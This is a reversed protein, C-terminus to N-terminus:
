ITIKIAPAYNFRAGAVSSLAGIRFYYSRGAIFNQNNLNIQLTYTINPDSNLDTSSEARVLSTNVGVAVNPHAYLGIRAVNDATTKEIKFTATVMNGNKVVSADKIRLFPTVSFDLKTSGKIEFTEIPTVPQFNGQVASIRYEGEFIMSNRYTGDNQVLLTQTINTPNEAWGLEILQIVTGQVIESQVPENTEVDIFTGYLEGNPADYNDIECSSVFILVMLFLIYRINNM